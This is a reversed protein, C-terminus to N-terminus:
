GRAAKTPAKAIDGAPVDEGHALGRGTARRARASSTTRPSNMSRSPARPQVVVGRARPAGALRDDEQM